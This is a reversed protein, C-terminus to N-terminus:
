WLPSRPWRRALLTDLGATRGAAGIILGLAIAALAADNSSPQGFWGGKALMYNVLLILGVSASFRTVLGVLLAFGVLLESWSLLPGFVEVNPLLIESAFRQYFGYGSPLAVGTLFSRLAETADGELKPVAALLFVFGLYLRLFVLAARALIGQLISGPLRLTGPHEAPGDTRPRFMLLFNHLDGRV